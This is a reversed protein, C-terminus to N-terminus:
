LYPRDINVDCGSVGVTFTTRDVPLPWEYGTGLERLAVIPDIVTDPPRQGSPITETRAPKMDDVTRPTAMGDEEPRRKRHHGVRAAARRIVLGAFACCSLRRRTAATFASGTKAAAM